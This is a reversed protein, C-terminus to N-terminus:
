FYATRATTIMARLNEPPTEAPIACGANLVFRPTGAFVRLLRRTAEEVEGTSGHALVGSPDINGVFVARGDILDRAQQADTRQDLELGDAGSSVMAGLIRQTSGCIHLVYPLGLEHARRVIQQEWPLAYRRYLAPSVLEPGAMSDGNSLMHAGAGAMLTLFQLTIHASYDLLRELPEEQSPDALEEMWGNMGRIMSALTFPCQDCNGRVLIDQGLDRVLLRVAELWVQIGPSSALDVPELDKVEELSRIRSGAVRAPEDRPRDVPVGAAAALTVTDVDVLIGDYGYREVSQTFARAIAVPDSRFQEMTVGAERAAMMFNHLMIPVRDPSEGAFAALIRARGNM